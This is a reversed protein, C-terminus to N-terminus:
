HRRDIENSTHNLNRSRAVSAVVMEYNVPVKRTVLSRCKLLILDDISGQVPRLGVESYFM